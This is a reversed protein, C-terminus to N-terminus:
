KKNIKLFTFFFHYYIKKKLYADKKLIAINCYFYILIM